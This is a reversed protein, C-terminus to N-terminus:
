SLYHVFTFPDIQHVGANAFDRTNRTAVTLKHTLATAAIMSDKIPMVCGAKRLDALLQAWRMGTASDWALCTMRKIGDEFWAELHKRRKGDPLLLIGFRLEGLIIPDVALLREHQRLWALVKPDPTPKTAESLINADVLYRM